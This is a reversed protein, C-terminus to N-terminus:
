ISGYGIDRMVRRLERIGEIGKLLSNAGAAANAFTSAELIDGSDLYSLTLAALFVDGCGTPDEPARRHSPPFRHFLVRGEDDRYIALSGEEGLTIAVASPGLSVLERGFSAYDGDGVLRREALLAAETENMQLVDACRIWEEWRDPRRLFRRGDDAIGLSLSHFDIFITSSFLERVKRLTDLSLEFGSIFNFCLADFGLFPELRNLPIPPVMGLCREQKVGDSDYNLLVHNNKCDVVRVGDLKVSGYGSLFESVVDWADEGINSVLYIETKEDALEAMPLVTYLVGGYSETPPKGPVYITDRNVTGIVAIKWGPM